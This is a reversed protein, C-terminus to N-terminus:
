VPSDVAALELTFRAHRMPCPPVSTSTVTMTGIWREVGAEDNTSTGSFTGVGEIFTADFYITESDSASTVTMVGQITGWTCLSDQRTGQFAINCAEPGEMPLTEGDSTLSCVSPVLSDPGDCAVPGSFTGSGGVLPVPPTYNLCGSVILADSLV